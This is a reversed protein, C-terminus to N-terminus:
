TPTIVTQPRNDIYGLENYTYTTVSDNGSGPQRYASEILIRGGYTYTYTSYHHTNNTDKDVYSEKVLNGFEDYEYVM